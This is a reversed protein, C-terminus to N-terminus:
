ILNQKQLEKRLHEIGYRYRSKATPLPIDLIEAIETFTCGGHLHLRIVESQEDPLTALLRAILAQEEDFDSPTMDETHLDRLSTVDVYEIRHRNRLLQTCSNSLARYLYCRANSVEHLQQRHLKLYLEQIVDQAEERRGLRYCAYRYLSKLEATFAAEVQAFSNDVSPKTLNM